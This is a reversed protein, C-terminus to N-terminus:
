TFWAQCNCKIVSFPLNNNTKTLLSRQWHYIYNALMFGRRNPQIQNRDVYRKAYSYGQKQKSNSTFASPARSLIFAISNTYSLTHTFNPRDHLPTIFIKWCQQYSVGCESGKSPIWTCLIHACLCVYFRINFILFFPRFSFETM